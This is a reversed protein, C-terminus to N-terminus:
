FNLAWSGGAKLIRKAVETSGRKVTGARQGNGKNLGWMLGSLRLGCGLGHQKRGRPILGVEGTMWPSGKCCRAM